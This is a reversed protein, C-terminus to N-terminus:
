QRVTKRDIGLRAAIASPGLGQHQVAKIETQQAMRIM